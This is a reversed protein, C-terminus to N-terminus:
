DFKSTPNKENIEKCFNEIKEANKDKSLDLKSTWEKTTLSLKAIPKKSLSQMTKFTREIGGGGSTSFFAVNKMKEKNQILYTRVAPVVNWTWIPTGIIVLDYKSPDESFMIYTLKKLTSDKGAVLYGKAGKRDKTDTIEDIKSNLIQSIKEAVKRTNGTRSYFAILTKM